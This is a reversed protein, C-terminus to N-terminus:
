ECEEIPYYINGAAKEDLVPEKTVYLAFPNMLGFDWLLRHTWGLFHGFEHGIIEPLKDFHTIANNLYIYGNEVDDTPLAAYALAEGMVANKPPVVENQDAWVIIIDAQEIDETYYIDKQRQTLLLGVELGEIIKPIIKDKSVKDPFYGSQITFTLDPECDFREQIKGTHFSTKNGELFDNQKLGCFAIMPNDGLSIEQNIQQLPKDIQEISESQWPVELNEKVCSTVMTFLISFLLFHIARKM